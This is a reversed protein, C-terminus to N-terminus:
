ERAVIQVAHYYHKTCFSIYSKTQCFQCLMMTQCLVFLRKRTLKLWVLLLNHTATFNQPTSKRVNYGCKFGSESEDIRRGRENIGQRGLAGMVM